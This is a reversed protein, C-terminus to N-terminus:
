RTDRTTDDPNHESLDSGDYPRKPTREEARAKAEDLKTKLNAITGPYRAASITASYRTGGVSVDLQALDEEIEAHRKNLHALERLARQVWGIAPYVKGSYTDRGVNLPGAVLGAGNRRDLGTLRLENGERDLVPVSLKINKIEVKANDDLFSDIAKKAAALSEFAHTTGFGDALVIGSVKFTFYHTLEIAHGRYDNPNEKM